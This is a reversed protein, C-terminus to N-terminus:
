RQQNLHELQVVNCCMYIREGDYWYIGFTRRFYPVAKKIHQHSVRYQSM